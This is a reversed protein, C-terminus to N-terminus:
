NLLIWKQKFIFNMRLKKKGDVLQINEPRIGM